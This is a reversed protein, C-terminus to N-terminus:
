KKRGNPCDRGQNCDHTCPPCTMVEGGLEALVATGWGRLAEVAKTLKAEAVLARNAWEEKTAAEIRYDTM